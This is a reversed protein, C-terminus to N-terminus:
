RTPLRQRALRGTSNKPQIRVLLHFHNRLLCYAFTEAVPEIYKVYLRMFHVYNREAVFLNERNNSRNYINHDIFNV